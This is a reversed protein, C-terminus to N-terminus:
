ERMELPTPLGLAYGQAYDVGIEKLMEIIPKSAAYEGVTRISMAHGVQNIAAVMAHNVPDDLIGEVFNGAIKLYDVPLKKLYAFSSFGTGFDDLAFRFGTRRLNKIFRSAQSLNYIASSETIEFCVQEPKLSSSTVQNHIFALLAEDNLSNGSLNIAIEVRKDSARFLENYRSFVTRIVWRDIAAMLGYREAAPIFSDPLLIEGTTDQLRILIEYRRTQELESMLSVIPQCYLHFREQDLLERLGAVRIIETHRRAPMSDDKQYIHVQNRGLDKATYCAVDAQTLIQAADEAQATISVLGISVGIHFKRSEWAFCFDRVQAVLMKAIDLAKSLPCNDLLLGFEDGGLRALTDRERVMSSLLSTVQKLLADGARHGVTDNVIKFQDLDLYCLAHQLGYEKSGAVAHELRREFERRNVLGTLADHSAQYALQRAMKHSETVDHLVMVAGLLKGTRDRIPAATNRVSHREGTRSILVPHNTLRIIKDELLCQIVPNPLPDHSLEDVIKFVRSLPKGRAQKCTWGTLAEARANMQEVIGNANTTIVGDGISHLTTEAREKEEHLAQEARERDTIDNEIGVFGEISGADDYLPAVTLEASYQTGDKRKNTLDGSWIKGVRICEWMKTYFSATQKGASWIGPKKGVVEESTYGTLRTFAPNVYRITGDLETMLISEGVANLGMALRRIKRVAKKRETIDRFSIVAGLIKGDQRIPSSRYEAHFSSGDRRWLLQDEVFFNKGEQLARRIECQDETCPSGDLCTHHILEHVCKGFLELANDYGLLRLGATNIFVNRGQTDVGCVGEGISELVLRLLTEGECPSKDQRRSEIFKESLSVVADAQFSM